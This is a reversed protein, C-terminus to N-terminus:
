TVCSHVPPGDQAWSSMHHTPLWMMMNSTTNSSGTPLWMMVMHCTPLGAQCSGLSRKNHFVSLGCGPPLPTLKLTPAETVAIETFSESFKVKFLSCSFLASAAEVEFQRADARQGPKCLAQVDLTLKCLRLFTIPIVGGM